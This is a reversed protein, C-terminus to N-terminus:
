RSGRLSPFQCWRRPSGCIDKFGIVPHKSVLREVSGDHTGGEVIELLSAGDNDGVRAVELTLLLNM